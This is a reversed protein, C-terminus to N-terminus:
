RKKNFSSLVTQFDFGKDEFFPNDELEKWREQIEEPKIGAEKMVKFAKFQKLPSTFKFPKEVSRRVEAWKLLLKYSDLISKKPKQGELVEGTEANIAPFGEEQHENENYKM